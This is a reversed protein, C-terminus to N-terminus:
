CHTSRRKWQWPLWFCRCNEQCGCRSQFSVRDSCPEGLVACSLRRRPDLRKFWVVRFTWLWCTLLTRILANRQTQAIARTLVILHDQRNLVKNLRISVTTPSISRQDIRAIRVRLTTLVRRGTQRHADRDWRLIRRLPRWIDCMWQSKLLCNSLTNVRLSWLHRVVIPEFSHTLLIRRSM